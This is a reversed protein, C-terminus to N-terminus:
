DLGSVLTDNIREALQLAADTGLGQAALVRIKFTHYFRRYSEADTRGMAKYHGAWWAMSERLATQAEQRLIHRKVHAKQGIAPCRNAALEAMYEEPTRDIKEVEGRMEALTEADLETLDGDIFEPASRSAPVPAHGCFPCALYFREYVQMCQVNLCSRLPIVDDPAGRSRRDRADLTWQQNHVADPPGQFRLVNGVHDIIIAHPKDSAAIAALREERNEPVPGKLSITSARNFQQAYLSLSETPRAMVVVELDPLDSGEGYLDVNVLILIERRRYRSMIEARVQDPTKASVVEARIGANNFQVSIAGATEVDSAYVIGQKGPAIRQYNLVVDGVIHSGRISAKVAKPKLEGSAGVDEGTPRVYDGPPVFIKYDLLWGDNIADRMQLGVVMTDVVGDAHRGLGKGDARTPTATVLLGRAIPFMDVAKGWKNEDLVHHGEDVVWLQVRALWAALEEGRNVLTDVGAVACSANPDYYSSGLERVHDMVIRKIVPQPAIIRHAVGCRALAISMQGVLEQRHAIACTAAGPQQLAKVIVGSFVVTKGTRTAQVAMVNRAGAAWAAHIADDLESQYPRYPIM